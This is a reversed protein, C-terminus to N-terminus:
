RVKINPNLGGLIASMEPSGGFLEEKLRQYELEEPDDGVNEAYFRDLWEQQKRIRALEENQRALSADNMRKQEWFQRNQMANSLAQQQQAADFQKQWNEQAQRRAADERQEKRYSGIARGIGSALAQLGQARDDAEASQGSVAPVKWRFDISLGM